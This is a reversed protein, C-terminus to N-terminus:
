NLTHDFYFVQVQELDENRLEIPREVVRDIEALIPDVSSFINEFDDDTLLDFSRVKKGGFRRYLNMKASDIVFRIGAKIGFRRFVWFADSM